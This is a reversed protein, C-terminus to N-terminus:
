VVVRLRGLDFCLSMFPPQRAANCCWRAMIQHYSCTRSTTIVVLLHLHYSM